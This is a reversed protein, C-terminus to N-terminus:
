LNVEEINVSLVFGFYPQGNYTLYQDNAGATERGSTIGTDDTVGMIVVDLDLHRNHLFADLAEQLMVIADQIKNNRHGQGIANVYFTVYYTRTVSYLDRASRQYTPVGAPGPFTLVAPLLASDLSPPYSGAPAYVVGPVTLARQQALAITTSITM